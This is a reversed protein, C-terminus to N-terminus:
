APYKESIGYKNSGRNSDTLYFVLLVINGIIPVFALLLLWGSKGIDHLRRTALAISPIVMALAFLLYVVNFLDSLSRLIALVVFLILNALVFWWLEARRARGSFNAYNKLVVKKWYSVLPM